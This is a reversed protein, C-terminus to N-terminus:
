RSKLKLIRSNKNNKDHEFDDENDLLEGDSEFVAVNIDEDLFLVIVKKKELSELEFIAKSKGVRGGLEIDIRAAGVDTQLHHKMKTLLDSQSSLDINVNLVPLGINNLMVDRM